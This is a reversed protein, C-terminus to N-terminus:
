RGGGAQWRLVALLGEDGRDEGGGGACGGGCDDAVHRDPAAQGSDGRDAESGARTGRRERGRRVHAQRAAATHYYYSHYELIVDKLTAKQLISYFLRLSTKTLM